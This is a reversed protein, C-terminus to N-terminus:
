ELYWKSSKQLVPVSPQSAFRQFSSTALQETFSDKMNKGNNVVSQVDKSFDFPNKIKEIHRGHEAAEFTFRNAFAGQEQRSSVLSYM